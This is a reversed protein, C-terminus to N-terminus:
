YSYEHDTNKHAAAVQVYKDAWYRLGNREDQSLERIVKAPMGMVMSGPPVQLGKTVLAGAGVICQDGIVAGDLIVARMGILCENGITCAHIMCAHGVTTYHGIQVGFQDALHIITGDQICTGEGIDISNIDGRLVAKPWVSSKPGITVAGILEASKAIYASKDVHPERGLYTQLREELNM